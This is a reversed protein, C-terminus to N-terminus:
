LFPQTYKFFFLFFLSLCFGFGTKDACVEAAGQRDSGKLLICEKIERFRNSQSSLAAVEFAGSCDTHDKNCFWKMCSVAKGAVYFSLFKLLFEM